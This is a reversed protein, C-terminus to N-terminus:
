QSIKFGFYIGIIAGISGLLLSWVSFVSDGFLMPLSGGISSGVFIGIWVLSKSNM